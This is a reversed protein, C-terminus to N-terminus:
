NNIEMLSRMLGQHSSRSCKGDIVSGMLSRMLGDYGSRSRKGNRGMLLKMLAMLRRTISSPYSSPKMVSRRSQIVENLHHTLCSTQSWPMLCSSHKPTSCLSRICHIGVLPLSSEVRGPYDNNQPVSLRIICSLIHSWTMADTPATNAIPVPSDGRAAITMPVSTLPSTPAGPSLILASPVCFPIHTRVILSSTSKSCPVSSLDLHVTPAPTAVSPSQLM